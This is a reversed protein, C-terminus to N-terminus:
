TTPRYYYLSFPALFPELIVTFLSHLLPFGALAKRNIQKETSLFTLNYFFCIISHFIIIITILSLDETARLLVPWPKKISM